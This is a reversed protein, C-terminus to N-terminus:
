DINIPFPCVKMVSTRIVSGKATKVELARVFGDKGPMVNLIRGVPWNLPNINDYKLIVMDGPKLNPQISKWKPRNQLLVLYYKHWKKWFLQQMQECQKWFSLRGVNVNSLDLEPYSCLPSGTLFHGPTLYSMDDPDRSLPTLPRSNLIGEIQVIVTYLEEYTLVTNCYAICHKMHYKVSKIGAEWLGGFVPSYSPIFHFSIRETNCFETVTDQHSTSAQLDYLEKLVNAAGKYCAGNDCYIKTPKNRRSIFRKLCGLFTNTSMDSALEIHVAKTVFCVFLVIYAKTIVPNRIRTQKVSFPGGYDTGVIQFPRTMNVRDLPFSGMLQTANKAKLKFCTICKYLVSKIERSANLIWYKDNLSGLVLSQGAHKLQIHQRWIIGKTINSKKPLIIPHMEAFPLDANQLRGGVRLLKCSDLFPNLSSLSSKVSNGAQLCKIESEFHKGQDVRIITQLASDLEKPSLKKVSKCHQAKCINIFRLVYAMIRTIKEIDSYKELITLLTNDKVCLINSSKIVPKIEPIDELSMLAPDIGHVFEANRMYKPGHWWLLNDKLSSPSVGRSLCDAPNDATNVYCWKYSSTLQLIKKVRNAVYMNLKVPETKLWALVIKSDPYLYTHVNYKLSLKTYVKNSLTALLLASELELRPITLVKSKPNIRSKSCFLNINVCKDPGIVRLYLCCGYAVGSADSFGILEFNNCIINKINRPVAICPMNVLDQAFEVWKKNINSPLPQDWMINHFWVEQMLLKASVLIPGVLGLPDFFKSIFSLMERKTYELKLEKVPCQIELSDTKVNYILGLTKVYLCNKDFDKVDLQHLDVPIDKLLNSNNSCWKHLAFSGMSLLKCLENKTQNLECIDDSGIQIDDVYSSNQLCFAALPYQDKFRQALELLCRTALFASSKLGYTVTLLQVCQVPDERSERWLINQLGCHKENLLVQRYMAKVDCLLVYKYTRFLILIDFLDSQVVPGNLLIDNLALGNKTKASGDFVARVPTTKSNPNIVPHHPLFNLKGLDINQNKTDLYKAHGQQVYDYIFKKYQQFLNNDKAFRKELNHLRSLAMPFSHGLGTNDLEVKLPLAVSFRNNELKVSDQFM